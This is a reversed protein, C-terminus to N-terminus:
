TKTLFFQVVSGVLNIGFLIAAFVWVFAWSYSMDFCFWGYRLDLGFLTLLFAPWLVLICVILWFIVSHGPVLLEHCIWVDLSSSVALFFLCLRIRANFYAMGGVLLTLFALVIPIM